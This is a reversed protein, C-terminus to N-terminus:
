KWPHPLLAALFAAVAAIWVGVREWTRQSARELTSIREDHRALTKDHDGLRDGLRQGVQDIQDGVDSVSKELRGIGRMIEGTSPLGLEPQPASM